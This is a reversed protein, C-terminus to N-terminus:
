IFSFMRGLNEMSKFPTFRKFLRLIRLVGCTSKVLNTVHYNWNLHQNFHVGLIKTMFARESIINNCKVQCINKDSLNYKLSMQYTSFLLLKTKSDNFVPNQDKSWNSLRALDEELRSVCCGIDKVKSHEYM